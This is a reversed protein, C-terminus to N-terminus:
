KSLALRFGFFPARLGYSRQNRYCSECYMSFGDYWGGRMIRDENDKPSVLLNEESLRSGLESMKYGDMCWELVNGSMDYIGLENPAKQGVNHTQAKKNIFGDDRGEWWAVSALNNSGSYKYGKSKIGGRAAYEWEAETPLRFKKGTLNNLKEIFLLFDDWNVNDVPRKNGMFKSPNTGMVSYWEEQTVEYKGIYFSSLLVKHSKGIHIITPAYEQKEDNGMMFTGGEVYIMNNMINQIIQEKQVQTLSPVTWDYKEAKSSKVIRDKNKVVTGEKKTNKATSRKITGGAAQAMLLSPVLALILLLITKKM